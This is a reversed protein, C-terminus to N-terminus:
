TGHMLGELALNGEPLLPASGPIRAPAQAVLRPLAKGPPSPCSGRSIGQSNKMLVDASARSRQPQVGGGAVGEANLGGSLTHFVVM